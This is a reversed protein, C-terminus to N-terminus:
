ASFARRPSKSVMSLPASTEGARVGGDVGGAVAAASVISRWTKAAVGTLLAGPAAGGRARGAQGERHDQQFNNVFVSSVNIPRPRKAIMAAQMSNSIWGDLALCSRDRRVMILTM